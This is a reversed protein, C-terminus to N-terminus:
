SLIKMMREVLNDDDGGSETWQKLSKAMASEGANVKPWPQSISSNSLGFCMGVKTGFKPRKNEDGESDGNSTTLPTPVRTPTVIDILSQSPHNSLYGVEPKGWAKPRKSSDAISLGHPTPSSPPPPPAYNASSTSDMPIDLHPSDMSPPSPPPHLKFLLLNFGDYDEVEGVIAALHDHVTTPDDPSRSLFSKLLLGRSPPNDM